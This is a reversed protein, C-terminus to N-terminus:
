QLAYESFLKICPTEPPITFIKPPPLISEELNILEYLCTDLKWHTHLYLQKFNAHVSGIRTQPSPHFSFDVFFFYVCSLFQDSADHITSGECLLFALVVEPSSCTSNGLSNFLANIKKVSAKFQQLKNLDNVYGILAILLDNTRLMRVATDGRGSFIPCM